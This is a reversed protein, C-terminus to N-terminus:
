PQYGELEFRGDSKMYIVSVGSERLKRRLERDNTAVIYNERKSVEVIADDVVGGCDEFVKFGMRRVYELVAQAVRAAKKRGSRAIRELELLQSRLIIPEVKSELLEEVRGIVNLPREFATM